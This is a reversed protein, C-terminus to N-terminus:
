VTKFSAHFRKSVADDFRIDIGFKEALHGVDRMLREVGFTTTLIQKPGFACTRSSLYSAVFPAGRMERVAEVFEACPGEAVSTIDSGLAPRNSALRVERQLRKRLVSREDLDVRLEHELPWFQGSRGKPWDNLASFAVDAPYEGLVNLMRQTWLIMKADDLDSPRACVSVILSLAEGLKEFPAPQMM